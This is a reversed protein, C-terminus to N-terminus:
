KRAMERRIEKELATLNPLIWSESWNRFSDNLQNQLRRIDAKAMGKTTKFTLDHPVGNKVSNRIESIVRM